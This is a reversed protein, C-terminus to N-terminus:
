PKKTTPPDLTALMSDMGDDQAELAEHAAIARTWRGVYDKLAARSADDYLVDGSFVSADVSECADHLHRNM